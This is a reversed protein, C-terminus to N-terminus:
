LPHFKVVFFAVEGALSIADPQVKGVTSVSFAGAAYVPARFILLLAAYQRM